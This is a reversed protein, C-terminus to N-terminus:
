KFRDTATTNGTQAMFAQMIENSMGGFAPMPMPYGVPVPSGMLPNQGMAMQAGIPYGGQTQFLQPKKMAEEHIARILKQDFGNAQLYQMMQMIPHGYPIGGTAVQAQQRLSEAQANSQMYRATIQPLDKAKVPVHHPREVLMTQRMAQGQDLVILTQKLEPKTGKRITWLREMKCGNVIRVARVDNKSVVALRNELLWHALEVYEEVVYHALASYPLPMLLKEATLSLLTWLADHPTPGEALYVELGCYAPNNGFLSTNHLQTSGIILKLLPEPENNRWFTAEWVGYFACREADIPDIPTHDTREELLEIAMNFGSGATITAKSVIVNKDNTPSTIVDANIELKM